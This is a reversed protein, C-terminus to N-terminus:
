HTDMLKFPNINSPSKVFNSLNEKKIRSLTASLFTYSLKLAFKALVEFIQQRVTLKMFSRLPRVTNLSLQVELYYYAIANNYNTSSKIITRSKRTDRM